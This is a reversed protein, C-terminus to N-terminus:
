GQGEDGDAGNGGDDQGPQPAQAAASALGAQVVVDQGPQPEKHQESM